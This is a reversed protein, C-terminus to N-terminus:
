RYKPKLYRLKTSDSYPKSRGLENFNQFISYYNLVKHHVKRNFKATNMRKLQKTASLVMKQESKDDSVNIKAQIKNSM